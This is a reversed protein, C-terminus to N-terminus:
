SNCLIARFIVMSKVALQWGFIGYWLVIISLFPQGQTWSVYIHNRPVEIIYYGKKEISSLFILFLSHTCFKSRGCSVLISQSDVMRSEKKVKGLNLAECTHTKSRWRFEQCGILLSWNFFFRHILQSCFFVGPVKETLSIKLHVNKEWSPIREM